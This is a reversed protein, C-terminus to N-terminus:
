KYNVNIYVYVSFMKSHNKINYSIKSPSTHSIFLKKFIYEEEGEFYLLLFLLNTESNLSQETVSLSTRTTEITIAHFYENILM